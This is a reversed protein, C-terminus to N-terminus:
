AGEVQRANRLLWANETAPCRGKLGGPVEAREACTVEAYRAGYHERVEGADVSFPPGDMASPDYAFTILLQPAAHALALLRAAYRSRTPAPLAVLAARDYVADVPGLVEPTLDFLDGVFLDLGGTAYRRLPGARYVDPTLDHEDFFEEVAQASLEVGAVRHGQARLWAMDLSRGCLPMFVRAGEPLALAGLHRALMPHVDSRHFGIAGDEWRRLWFDRDM